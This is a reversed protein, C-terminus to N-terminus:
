ILPLPNGNADRIDKGKFGSKTIEWENTTYTWTTDCERCYGSRVAASDCRHGMWLSWAM